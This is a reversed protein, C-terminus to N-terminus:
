PESVPLRACTAKRLSDWVPIPLEDADLWPIWIDRQTILRPKTRKPEDDNTHATRLLLLGSFMDYRTSMREEERSKEGTGTSKQQFKITQQAIEYPYRGKM